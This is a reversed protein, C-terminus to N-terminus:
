EDTRREFFPCNYRVQQGLKPEYDCPKSVCENCSGSEMINQLAILSELIYAVEAITNNLRTM